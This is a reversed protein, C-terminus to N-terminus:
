RTDFRLTRDEVRGEGDIEIRNEYVRAVAFASQEPTDVMGPVTLYHVGDLEGYHGAHNHGSIYAAV